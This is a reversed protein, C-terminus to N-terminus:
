NADIGSSELMEPNYHDRKSHQQMNQKFVARPKATKFGLYSPM